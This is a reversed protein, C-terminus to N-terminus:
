FNLMPMAWRFFKGLPEVSTMATQKHGSQRNRGGRGNDRIRKVRVAVQDANNSRCGVLDLHAYGM